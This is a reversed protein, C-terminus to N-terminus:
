NASRLISLLLCWVKLLSKSSLTAELTTPPTLVIPFFWWLLENMCFWLKSEGIMEGVLFTLFFCEPPTIPIFELILLPAGWIPWGYKGPWPAWPPCLGIMFIVIFWTVTLWKLVVLFFKGVMFFIVSLWFFYTLGYEILDIFLYHLSFQCLNYDLKQNQMQM